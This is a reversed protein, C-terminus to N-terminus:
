IKSEHESLEILKYQINNIVLRISDVNIEIAPSSTSEECDVHESLFAGYPPKNNLKSM